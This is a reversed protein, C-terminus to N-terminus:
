ARASAVKPALRRFLLALVTNQNANTALRVILVFALSGTGLAAHQFVDNPVGVVLWLTFAVALISRARLVEAAHQHRSIREQAAAGLQGSATGSASVVVMM